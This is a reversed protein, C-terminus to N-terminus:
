IVYQELDGFRIAHMYQMYLIMHLTKSIIFGMGNIGQVFKKLNAGKPVETSGSM